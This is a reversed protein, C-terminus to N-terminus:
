PYYTDGRSTDATGGENLVLTSPCLTTLWSRPTLTDRSQFRVVFTFYDLCSCASEEYVTLDADEKLLFNMSSTIFRGFKLNGNELFVYIRMQFRPGRTTSVTESGTWGGSEKACPSWGSQGFFVPILGEDVWFGTDQGGIWILCSRRFRSLPHSLM